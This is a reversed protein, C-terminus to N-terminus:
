KKIIKRKLSKYLKEPLIKKLIISIIRKLHYPLNDIRATEIERINDIFGELMDNMMQGQEHSEIKFNRGIDFYFHTNQGIYGIHQVLSNNVCYIPIEMKNFYGSFQWDFAKVNETSDIYGLLEEIRDRRLLTGASGITKKLCLDSDVARCPGHSNANFLTLIGSTKDVLELARNLWNRAFLLDSDANFLYTDSSKLFDKHMRFINQDAKINEQNVSISAATPFIRKLEEMGYESSCDDYIRINHPVSLDSSYLSSAMMELIKKRNYTTIGITVM